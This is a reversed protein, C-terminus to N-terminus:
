GAVLATYRAQSQPVRHLPHGLLRAAHSFVGVASGAAGFLYMRTGEPDAAEFAAWTAAVLNGPAPPAHLYLADVFLYPLYGECLQAFLQQPLGHALRRENSGLLAAGAGVRPRAPGGVTAPM